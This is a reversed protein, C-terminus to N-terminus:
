INQKDNGLEAAASPNCNLNGLAKYQWVVAMLMHIEYGATFLFFLLTYVNIYNLKMTFILAVLLKPCELVIWPIILSRRNMLVGCILMIDVIPLLLTFALICGWVTWVESSASGQSVAMSLWGLLLVALIVTISSLLSMVGIITTGVKLDLCYCCKRM